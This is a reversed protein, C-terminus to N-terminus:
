NGNPDIIDGPNLTDDIPPVSSTTTVSSGTVTSGTEDTTPVSSTDTPRGAPDTSDVPDPEFPEVYRAPGNLDVVERPGLPSRLDIEYTYAVPTQPCQGASQGPLYGISVSVTVRSDTEQVDVGGLGHCPYGFFVVLVTSPSVRLFEEVPTARVDSLDTRVTLPRGARKDPLESSATPAPSADRGSPWAQWVALASFLVLVVVAVLRMRPTM